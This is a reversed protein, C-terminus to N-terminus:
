RNAIVAQYVETVVEKARSTSYVDVIKDYAAKARQNAENPNNSIEVILDSIAVTSVEDLLYACGDGLVDELFGARSSVIVMGMMMAENISNNHGEGEHSSPYCYIDSSEFCKMVGQRDQVGIRIIKLNVHTQRAELWKSFGEEEKGVLTLELRIQHKDACMECAEVLEYVGKGEYCYGVFLVRIMERRLKEEFQTPIEADPVVNPFYVAERDFERRIFPL